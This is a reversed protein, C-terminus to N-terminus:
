DPNEASGVCAFCRQYWTTIDQQYLGPWLSHTKECFAREWTALNCPHLNPPGARGAKSAGLLLVPTSSLPCLPNPSCQATTSALLLSCALGNSQAVTTSFHDQRWLRTEKNETGNPSAGLQMCQRRQWHWYLVLLKRFASIFLHLKKERNNPKKYLQEFARLYPPGSRLVRRLLSSSRYPRCSPRVWGPRSLFGATRQPRAAWRTCGSSTAAAFRRPCGSPLYASARRLILLARGLSLRTKPRNRWLPEAFSMSYGWRQHKRKRRGQNTTKMKEVEVTFWKKRGDRRGAM